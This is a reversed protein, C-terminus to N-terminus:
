GQDKIVSQEIEKVDALMYKSQKNVPIKCDLSCKQM